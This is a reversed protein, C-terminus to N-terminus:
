YPLPINFIWSRSESSPDVHGAPVLLNAIAIARDAQFTQGAPNALDRVLAAVLGDFHLSCVRAGYIDVEPVVTQMLINNEYDQIIYAYTFADRAYVDALTAPDAAHRHCCAATPFAFRIVSAAHRLVLVLCCGHKEFGLCISFM